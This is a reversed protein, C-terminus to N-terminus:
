SCMQTCLGAPPHVDILSHMSPSGQWGVSICWGLAEQGNIALTETLVSYVCINIVPFLALCKFLDIVIYSLAMERLM